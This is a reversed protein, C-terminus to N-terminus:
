NNENGYLNKLLEINKVARTFRDRGYTGYDNDHAEKIITWQSWLYDWLIKYCLIKEKVNIPVEANFYHNLMYDENSAEFEAEIFLAAFDAMPDNMGSYEWDIIYITGDVAKIFNDYLTDNHCPRLDVGLRNLREELAMVQPRVNEWGEYMNLHDKELLLDYKEIERFINFENKLRIHADHIDHFIRCIQMMNDQRQVTAANLTEANEIFDTLKLGTKVNFYRISPTVGLRHGQRANFAENARVVMGDSGPGPIRLVYHGLPMKVEFNRNSLGGIQIFDVDQLKEDPFIEKMYQILNDRDFPNEKRRLARATQNQLRWFDRQNDVDGWILNKFMLVPRELPTTVEMMVYEYKLIPNNSKDWESLMKYYTEVSLRSIGLMEGEFRRVRHRDKTINIMYGNQTEVFCEDGSGSEETMTFCNGFSIGKLKEYVIRECFTDAEILLFDEKMIDRVTALSSMSSTFEYDPNVVLSIGKTEYRRFLDARFGVVIIINGIGIHHLIDITRDLLCTADGIDQLPYPIHTDFERRAALIVATNM